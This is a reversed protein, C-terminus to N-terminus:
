IIRAVIMTQDDEAPQGATFNRVAVLVSELLASAQLSCNELEHDLRETTFMEGEPSHAETIGDTYFIIQDGPLLQHVCETYASDDGIGLPLGTAENLAVLSGDQCRKLRPPNHGARAYTLTRRAPDYVAYFATVFSENQATYRTALRRNLYTLVQQPRSSPCPNSHAICHTIAMLVAAPTGHGSVDAIFIGWKGDPLEFFDYYDGGARQSPQYHAALDMTPIKPLVAPLLSRQIEGVLAFERDIAQYAQKLQDSLVLTNTARGFLNSLWVLEPLETHAFSAPEKRLLVVMNLAVGQDYMPIAALSRNGVFYEAAPDDHCLQLDDIIRPVDKYLLDALLGGRLLPLREKEKWPNIDEDWTTSRTVRFEPSRLGRRSISVRGDTPRLLQVRRAYSRVMEQPDTHRSMDRMMDVVHGLRQEWDDEQSLFLHDPRTSSASSM